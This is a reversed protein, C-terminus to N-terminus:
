PQAFYACTDEPVLRLFVLKKEYLLPYNIRFLVRLHSTQLHTHMYYSRRLSRVEILWPKLKDDIIIDYGYCEFCHKDNNMVPQSLSFVSASDSLPPSRRQPHNHHMPFKKVCSPIIWCSFTKTFNGSYFYVLLCLLVSYGAHQPRLPSTLWIVEYFLSTHTLTLPTKFWM